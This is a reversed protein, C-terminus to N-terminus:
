RYSNEKRKKQSSKTTRQAPRIVAWDGRGHLPMVLITIPDQQGRTAKEEKPCRM